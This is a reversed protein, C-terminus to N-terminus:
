LSLTCRPVSTRHASDVAGPNNAPKVAALPSCHWRRMALMVVTLAIGWRAMRRTMMWVCQPDIIEGEDMGSLSNNGQGEETVHEGPPDNASPHRHPCAAMKNGIRQRLGDMRATRLIPQGMMGVM